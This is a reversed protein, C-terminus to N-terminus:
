LAVLVGELQALSLEVPAEVPQTGRVRRQALAEELYAELLDMM